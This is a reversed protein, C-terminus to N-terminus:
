ESREYVKQLQRSHGAHNVFDYNDLLWNRAAATTMKNGNLLCVWVRGERKIKTVKNGSLAALQTLAPETVNCLIRPKSM